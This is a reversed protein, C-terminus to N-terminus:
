YFMRSGCVLTSGAGTDYLVVGYSAAAEPHFENAVGIGKLRFGHRNLVLISKSASEDFLIRYEYNSSQEFFSYQIEKVRLGMWTAALPLTALVERADYGDGTERNRSFTPTIPRESGPMRVAPGQSAQWTTEDMRVLRRFIAFMKDSMECAYPNTMVFLDDLSAAPGIKAAVPDVVEPVDEFKQFEIGSSSRSEETLWTIKEPSAQTAFIVARESLNLQSLYHGVVANGVGTEILKGNEEFYSAHFGIKGAPSLLRPSGAIWILACASACLGDKAVITSYERLRIARGISLAPALSGGPSDLLVAAREHELSIRRFREEDGKVIPGSVTVLVLDTGTIPEVRIDAAHSPAIAANVSVALALLRMSRQIKLM